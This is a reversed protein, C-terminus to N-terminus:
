TWAAQGQRLSTAQELSHCQSCIRVTEAKGAGNPLNAAPSLGVACLLVIALKAPRNLGFITTLNNLTKPNHRAAIMPNAPVMKISSKLSPIRAVQWCCSTDLATPASSREYNLG